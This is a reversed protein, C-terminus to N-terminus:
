REPQECVRRLYTDQMNRKKRHVGTATDKSDRARMVHELGDAM